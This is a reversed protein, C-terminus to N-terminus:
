EREPYDNSRTKEVYFWTPYRESKLRRHITSKSIGLERLAAKVSPFLRGDISVARSGESTVVRGEKKMRRYVTSPSIGLQRAAEAGTAYIVGSLTWEKRLNASPKNPDANYLEHQCTTIYEREKELRSKKLSFHPGFERIRFVFTERGYNVWDQQLATCEHIEAFLDNAHRGLRYLVNDSEGFYSRNTRSCYIEYVGPVCFELFNQPNM